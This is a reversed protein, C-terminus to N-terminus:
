SRSHKTKLEITEAFERILQDLSVEPPFTASTDPDAVRGAGEPAARYRQISFNGEFSRLISIQDFKKEFDRQSKLGSHALVVPKSLSQRPPTPVVQGCRAAVRNVAEILSQLDHLSAHEVPEVNLWYGAETKVITPVVVDGSEKNWYVNILM